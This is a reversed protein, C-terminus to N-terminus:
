REKKNIIINKFIDFFKEVDVDYARNIIYGGSDVRKISGKNETKNVLVMVEEFKLVDEIISVVALPDHLVSKPFLFYESWRKYWTSLLKGEEGKLDTLEELIQEDLECKLTVDLGVAYICAGSSFVIEAAEPDCLINWEPSEEEFWGGMLVIKNVRKAFGPDKKIAQAINTLPGIPCIVLENEYVKSQEILYEVASKEPIKYIDYDSSYQCPVTEDINNSIDKEFFIVEDKLPAGVGKYVPINKEGVIDFFKAIQKARLLTNKFVTTVGILDIKPSNYAVSLAFADDIDDGIDTDLIVKIKDM